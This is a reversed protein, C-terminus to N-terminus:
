RSPASSTSGSKGHPSPGTQKRSDKLRSRITPSGASVEKAIADALDNGIRDMESMKVGIDAAPPLPIHKKGEEPM